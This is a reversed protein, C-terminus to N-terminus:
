ATGTYPLWAAISVLVAITTSEGRTTMLESNDSTSADATLRWHAEPYVPSLEVIMFPDADAPLITMFSKLSVEIRFLEGLM